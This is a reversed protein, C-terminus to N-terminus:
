AAVELAQAVRQLMTWLGDVGPRWDTNHRSWRQWTQGHFPFPQDAAHPYRQHQVLRVWPLLYFMDPPVDPYGSPLLILVDAQAPDFRGPPLAYGRIIVGQQPGEMVEEYGLGRDALYRRDQSPLCSM